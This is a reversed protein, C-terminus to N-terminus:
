SYLKAVTMELANSYFPVNKNLIIEFTISIFYIWWNLTIVKNSNKVIATRRNNLILNSTIIPHCVSLDLVGDYNIPIAELIEESTRMKDHFEIREYNNERQTHSFLINVHNSLILKEFMPFTVNETFSFGYKSFFNKVKKYPNVVKEEFKLWVLEPCLAEYSELKMQSTVFDKELSYYDKLFDEKNFPLCYM